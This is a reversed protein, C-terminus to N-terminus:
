FYFSGYPRPPSVIPYPYPQIYYYGPRPYPRWHTHWGIDPTWHTYHPYLRYPPYARRYVPGPYYHNPYPYVYSSYGFSFRHDARSETPVVLMLGVAVVGVMALSLMKRM